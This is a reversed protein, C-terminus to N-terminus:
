DDDGVGDSLGPPRSGIWWVEKWGTVDPVARGGADRAPEYRFRRVIVRCTTADLEANGSGDVVRCRSPRGDTGVDFHVVVTGEAGVDGAGRPYDASRIRGDILRARSVVSGGGGDGSGGDGSGTGAGEGGAGTGPGAVQAAGASTDSGKGAVPAGAIPPVPLRLPPTPAVVPSPEARLNPPAAAGEPVKSPAPAPEPEEVPSPPAQISLDFVTLADAARAGAEFRLGVILAYALLAHIAVVAAVSKARDINPTRTM